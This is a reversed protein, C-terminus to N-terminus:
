QLKSYRFVTGASCRFVEHSRALCKANFRPRAHDEGVGFKGLESSKSSGHERIVLSLQKRPRSGELDDFRLAMVDRRNRAKANSNRTLRASQVFNGLKSSTM